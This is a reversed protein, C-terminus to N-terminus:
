KRMLARKPALPTPGRLFMAHFMVALTPLSGILTAIPSPLGAAMLSGGIGLLFLPILLLVVDYYRAFM